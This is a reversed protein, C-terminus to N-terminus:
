ATAGRKQALAAQILRMTDAQIAEISRNADVLQVPYREAAAAFGQAVREFYDLPKSEFYDAKGSQRRAREIATAVESQYIITLEPQLQNMGAEVYRWTTAEDLGSGFAQYAALSLPGRDMLILKDDTRETAIARTLAEQIAVSIYLDTTPPRDIPRLMVERLAEGIPTGGLNRTAQVPWGEAILAESALNLQTTKGVGDIGDFIVLLGGPLKM